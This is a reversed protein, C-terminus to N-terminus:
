FQYGYAIGVTAALDIEDDDRDDIVGLAAIGQIFHRNPTGRVIPLTYTAQASAEFGYDDGGHWAIRPGIFLEHHDPIASWPIAFSVSVGTGFEEDDSLFIEPRIRWAHASRNITWEAAVGPEFGATGVEIQALLRPWVDHDVVVASAFPAATALLCTCAAAFSRM